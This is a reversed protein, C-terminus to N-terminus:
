IKTSHLKSYLEFTNWFQNKFPVQFPKPIFSLFISFFFLLVKRRKGWENQGSPGASGKGARGLKGVGAWEKGPGCRAGGRKEEKAWQDRPGVRWRTRAEEEGDHVLLVGLLLDLGNIGRNEQRKVRFLSRYLGLDVGSSGRQMWIAFDLGLRGQKPIKSRASLGWRPPGERDEKPGIWARLHAWRLSGTWRANKKRLITCRIVNQVFESSTAWPAVAGSALAGAPRRGDGGSANPGDM